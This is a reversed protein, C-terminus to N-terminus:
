LLFKEVRANRKSTIFSFAWFSLWARIWSESGALGNPYPGRIQYWQFARELLFLQSFSNKWDTAENPLYLCFLWFAWGLESDPSLVPWVTQTHTVFKTGNSHEKWLCCNALLITRIPRKTQFNYVFFGFLEALSSNLVWFRGFRKPIPWSNPVM